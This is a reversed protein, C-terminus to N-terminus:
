LVTPVVADILSPGPTALARALERGFEEATKARSAHLGLGAALQAFDIYPRGIDLM